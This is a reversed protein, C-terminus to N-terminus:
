GSHGYFGSLGECPVVEAESGHWYHLTLDAAAVALRQGAPKTIRITVVALRHIDRRNPPLQMRNGNVGPVEVFFQANAIEATVAGSLDLALPCRKASAGFTAARVDGFPAGSLAYGVLVGVALGVATWRIRAAM